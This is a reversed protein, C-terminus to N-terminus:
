NIGILSKVYSFYLAKNWALIKPIFTGVKMGFIMYGFDRPISMSIDDFYIGKGFIYALSCEPVYKPIDHHWIDYELMDSFM